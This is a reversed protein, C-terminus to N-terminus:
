VDCPCDTAFGSVGRCFIWTSYSSTVYLPGIACHQIRYGSLLDLSLFMWPPSSNYFVLYRTDFHQKFCIGFTVLMRTNFKKDDSLLVCNYVLSFLVWIPSCIYKIVCLKQVPVFTMLLFCMMWGVPKPAQEEVQQWHSQSSTGAVDINM